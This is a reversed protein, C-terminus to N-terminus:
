LKTSHTSKKEKEEEEGVIEWRQQEGCRIYNYNSSLHTLAISTCVFAFNAQPPFTNKLARLVRFILYM